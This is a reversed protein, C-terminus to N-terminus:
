RQETSCVTIFATPTLWMNVGFAVSVIEYGDKTRENLVEEVRQTLSTTSWMTSLKIVSYTRMYITLAKKNKFNIAVAIL